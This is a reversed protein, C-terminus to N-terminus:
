ETVSDLEWLCSANAANTWDIVSSVSVAFISILVKVWPKPIFLTFHINIFLIVWSYNNVKPLNHAMYVTVPNWKGCTEKGFIPELPSYLGSFNLKLSM